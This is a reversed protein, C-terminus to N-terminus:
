RLYFIFQRILLILMGVYFDICVIIFLLGFDGVFYNIIFWEMFIFLRIMLWLCINVLRNLIVIDVNVWLEIVILIIDFEIGGIIM